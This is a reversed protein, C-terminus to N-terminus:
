FHQSQSGFRGSEREFMVVGGRGIEFPLDIYLKSTADKSRSWGVQSPRWRIADKNRPAEQGWSVLRTSVM